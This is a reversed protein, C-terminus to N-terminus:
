SSFHTPQKGAVPSNESMSANISSNRSAHFRGDVGVDQQVDRAAMGGIRFRSQCGQPHREGISRDDNTWGDIGLKGDIELLPLFGEVRIQRAYSYM